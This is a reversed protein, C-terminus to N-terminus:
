KVRSPFGNLLESCPFAVVQNINELLQEWQPIFFQDCLHLLQGLSVLKSAVAMTWSIVAVSTVAPSTTICPVVQSMIFISSFPDARPSTIINLNKSQIDQCVATGNTSNPLFHPLLLSAPRASTPTLFWPDLKPCTLYSIGILYGLVSVSYITSYAFSFNYELFILAAPILDTCLCYIFCWDRILNLFFFCCGPLSHLCFLSSPSLELARFWSSPLPLLAPLPSQM